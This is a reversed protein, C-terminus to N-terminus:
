DFGVFMWHFRIDKRAKYVLYALASWIGVYATRIFFDSLVHLWVVRPDDLYSHIHPMFSGSSFTHGSNGPLFLMVVLVPTVIALGFLAMQYPISKVSNM